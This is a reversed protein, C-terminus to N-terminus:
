RKAAPKIPERRFERYEDFRKELSYENELAERVQKLRAREAENESRTELVQAIEIALVYYESPGLNSDKWIDKWVFFTPDTGFRPEAILKDLLTMTDYTSVVDDLDMDVGIDLNPRLLKAGDLYAKGTESRRLFYEMTRQVLNETPDIVETLIQHWEKLTPERDMGKRSVTRRAMGIEGRLQGLPKRRPWSTQVPTFASSFGFASAARDFCIQLSIDRVCYSAYPQIVM